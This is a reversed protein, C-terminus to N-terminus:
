EAVKKLDARLVTVDVTVADLKPKLLGKLDQIAEMIADLQPEVQPNRDACPGREADEGVLTAEAQRPAPQAQRPVPQAQRQVTYKDMKNMQPPHQEKIVAGGWSPGIPKNIRAGAEGTGSLPQPGTLLTRM